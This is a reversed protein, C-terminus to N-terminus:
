IEILTQCIYHLFQIGEFALRKDLSGLNSPLKLSPFLFCTLANYEQLEHLEGRQRM